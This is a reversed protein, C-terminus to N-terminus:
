EFTLKLDVTIGATIGEFQTLIETPVKQALSLSDLSKPIFPLTDTIVIKEVLESTAPDADIQLEAHFSQGRFFSEIFGGLWGPFTIPSLKQTLDKPLWPLGSDLVTITPTLM